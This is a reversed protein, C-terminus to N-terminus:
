RPFLKKGWDVELAYSIARCFAPYDLPPCHIGRGSLIGSAREHAFERPDFMYPWYIELFNDFLIELANRPKKEFAEPAVTEIGDLNMFRKVYAVIDRTHSPRSSVLHFIDGDGGLAEEFLAMFGQTFYDIPILNLSGQRRGIRLPLFLRGDARLEVGMERAKKGGKERIDQLYLNKLFHITKVPYYLANFRLSRGSRHDGYVISPRYINLRLGAGRCAELCLREASHKSREYANHFDAPASFDEPCRGLVKGAVYATSVYHLFSSKGSRALAFLNELSHVNAAEVDAKERQHLRTDAAAHVIEDVQDVLRGYDEANLGLRTKEISGAFIEPRPLEAPGRGFWSMLRAVREGASGSPDGRVLLLTRYGRKLFEHALHGGLFGTAGTVLVTATRNKRAERLSSESARMDPM